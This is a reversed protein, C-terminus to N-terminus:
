RGLKEKRYFQFTKIFYLASMIVSLVTLIIPFWLVPHSDTASDKVVCFVIWSLAIFAVSMVGMIIYPKASYFEKHFIVIAAIFVVFYVLPFLIVTWLGDSHGAELGYEYCANGFCLLLAVFSFLVNFFLLPEKNIRM